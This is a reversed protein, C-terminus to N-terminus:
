PPGPFGPPIISLLLACACAMVPLQSKKKTRNIKQTTYTKKPTTPFHPDADRPPQKLMCYSPPKAQFEIRYGCDFAPEVNIEVFLSAQLYLLHSFPPVGPPKKKPPFSSPAPLLPCPPTPRPLAPCPPTPRPPHSPSASLSIQAKPPKKPRAYYIYRYLM